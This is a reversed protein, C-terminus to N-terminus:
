KRDNIIVQQCAALQRAVDDADAALNVLFESAQNSLLGAPAAPLEGSAGGDRRGAGAGAEAATGACAPVPAAGPDRLRLTGARMAAIDAARRNKADTLKREYDNAIASMADASDREAQRAAQQLNNIQAAHQAQQTAERKQWAAEVAAMGDHRQWWGVAVMSGLWLAAVIAIRYPLPIPNM